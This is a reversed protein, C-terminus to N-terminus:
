EEVLFGDLTRWPNPDEPNPNPKDELGAIYPYVEVATIKGYTQGGTIQRSYFEGFVPIRYSTRYMITDQEPVLWPVPGEQDGFGSFEDTRLNVAHTKSGPEQGIDPNYIRNLFALMYSETDAMGLVNVVADALWDRDRASLTVIELELDGRYLFHKFRQFIEPTVGEDSVREWEEHGVGASSIDREYYRVIIAPYSARETSYALNVKTNRIMSDPHQAFVTRLAEIVAEKLYTRYRITQQITAM